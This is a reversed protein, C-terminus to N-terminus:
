LRKDAPAPVPNSKIASDPDTDLRLILVDECKAKRQCADAQTQGSARFGLCATLDDGGKTAEVLAAKAATSNSHEDFFGRFKFYKEVAGFTINAAKLTNAATDRVEECAGDGADCKKMSMGKVLTQSLLTVGYCYGAFLDTDNPADV